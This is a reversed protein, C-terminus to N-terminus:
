NNLFKQILYQLKFTEIDKSNLGWYQMTDSTVIIDYLSRSNNYRIKLRKSKLIDTCMNKPIDVDNETIYSFNTPTNNVFPYIYEIYNYIDTSKIKM